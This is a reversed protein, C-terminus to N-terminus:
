LIFSNSEYCGLGTLVALDFLGKIKISVNGVVKGHQDLAGYGVLPNKQNQSEKSSSVEYM